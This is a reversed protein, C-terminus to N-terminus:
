TRAIAAPEQAPLVKAIATALAKRALDLSHEKDHPVGGLEISITMSDLKAASEIRQGVVLTCMASCAAVTGSCGRARFRVDRILGDDLKLYLRVRDSCGNGEFCEEVEATADPLEGVYVPSQFHYMYQESYM